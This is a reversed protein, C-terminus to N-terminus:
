LYSASRCFLLICTSRRLLDEPLGIRLDPFIADAADDGRDDCVSALALALELLWDSLVVFFSAFCLLFDTGDNFSIDSFFLLAALASFSRFARSVSHCFVM